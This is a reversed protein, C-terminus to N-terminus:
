ASAEGSAPSHLSFTSTDCTSKLIFQPPFVKQSPSTQTSAIIAIITKRGKGYYAHSPEVRWLRCPFFAQCLSSQPFLGCSCIVMIFSDPATWTGSWVVSTQQDGTALRERKREAYKLAAGAGM